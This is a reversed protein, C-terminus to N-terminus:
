KEPSMAAEQANEIERRTAMIVVRRIWASRSMGVRRACEDIAAVDGASELQFGVHVSKPKDTKM